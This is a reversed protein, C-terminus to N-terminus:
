ENPNVEAEELKIEEEVQEKIEVDIIEDQLTDLKQLEEKYNPCNSRAHYIHIDCDDCEITRLGQYPVRARQAQIRIGATGSSTCGSILLICFIAIIRRM